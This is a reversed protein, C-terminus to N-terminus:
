GSRRLQHLFFDLLEAVAKRIPRLDFSPLLGGEDFSKGNFLAIVGGVLILM